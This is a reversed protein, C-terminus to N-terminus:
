DALHFVKIQQFTNAAAAVYALWQSDPAWRLDSFDTEQSEDIKRNEKKEVDYLYLRQNKDYHAIYKGDPSPVGDWRLVDGGTTLQEPRGVGNAPLKWWEVEGSEDTLAMLFKGDPLFRANRNRIGEKRGTEVFRGQHRPAIFIRGRATLAVRDGDPSL